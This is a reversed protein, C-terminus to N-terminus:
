STEEGGWLAVLEDADGIVAVNLALLGLANEHLHPAYAATADRPVFVPWDLQVADTATALICCETTLGIVSVWRIGDARLREALGTGLFGSYGTKRFRPEDDRPELVYWEAGETGVVCPEGDDIPHDPDGTRLWQSARWPTETALEIWYVPVGDARADAVLEASRSVAAAVDAAAQESLSFDALMEPDGFSRQVDVVLLAGGGGGLAALQRDRLSM